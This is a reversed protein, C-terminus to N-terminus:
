TNTLPGKPLTRMKDLHHNEIAELVRDEESVVFQQCACTTYTNAGTMLKGVCRHARHDARSHKCVDCNM